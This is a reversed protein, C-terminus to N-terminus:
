ESKARDYTQRNRHPFPEDPVPVGLFPCIQAWEGGDTVDLTLLRGTGEFFRTIDDNHREYARVFGRETFADARLHITYTEVMQPKKITLWNHVSRWWSRPERRTLIFRSDPFRNAAHQYMEWVNWPRDEFGLYGPVVRLAPEYDGRRTINNFLRGAGGPTTPGAVPNWGLIEFCGKMTSTGTKNMGVVFM